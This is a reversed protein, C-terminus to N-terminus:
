QEVEVDQAISEAAKNGANTAARQATVRDVTTCSTLYQYVQQAVQEALRALQQQTM